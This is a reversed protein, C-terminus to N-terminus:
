IQVRAKTNRLASFHLNRVFVVLIGVVDERM